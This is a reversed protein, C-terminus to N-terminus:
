YRFLDRSMQELLPVLNRYLVRRQSSDLGQCIRCIEQPDGRFLTQTLQNLLDTPASKTLQVEESCSTM